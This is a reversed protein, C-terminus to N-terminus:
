VCACSITEVEEWREAGKRLGSPNGTLHRRNTIRVGKVQCTAKSTYKQVKLVTIWSVSSAPITGIFICKCYPRQTKSDSGSCFTVWNYWPKPNAYCKSTVPGCHSSPPPCALQSVPLGNLLSNKRPWLVCSGQSLLVTPTLASFRIMVRPIMSLLLDPVKGQASSSM